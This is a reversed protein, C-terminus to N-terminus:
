LAAHPRHRQPSPAAAEEAWPTSEAFVAGLENSSSAPQAARVFAARTVAGRALAQIKCLGRASCQAQGSPKLPAAAPPGFGLPSVLGEELRVLEAGANGRHGRFYTFSEARACSQCVAKGFVFYPPQLLAVQLGADQFVTHCSVDLTKLRLWFGPQRPPRCHGM